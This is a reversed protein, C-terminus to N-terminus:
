LHSEVASVSVYPSWEDTLYVSSTPDVYQTIATVVVYSDLIESDLMVILFMSFWPHYGLLIRSLYYPCLSIAFLSLFVTRQSM